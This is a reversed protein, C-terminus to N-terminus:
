TLELEHTLCLDEFVRAWSVPPPNRGQLLRCPGVLAAGMACGEAKSGLDADGQQAWGYGLELM